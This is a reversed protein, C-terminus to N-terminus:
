GPTKKRFAHVTGLVPHLDGLFCPSARLLNDREALEFRRHSEMEGPTSDLGNVQSVFGMCPGWLRQQEMYETLLALRNPHRLCVQTRWLTEVHARGETQPAKGLVKRPRRKRTMRIETHRREM